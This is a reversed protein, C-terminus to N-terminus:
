AHALGKILASLLEKGAHQSKEPHFQIGLVNRNRLVAPVVRPQRTTAAIFGEDGQFYYSHNFYFDRGHGPGLLEDPGKCEMTNWGIHWEGKPLPVIEGPILGLGETPRIELSRTALLQMGLCIGVLPRGLAAEERLYGTLGRKHLEEMASPFAGVGPLLLVDTPRLASAEDSIRVRFGLGRLTHAVSAHNGMGYDVIGVTLFSM